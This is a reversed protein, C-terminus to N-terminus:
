SQRVAFGINKVLLNDLDGGRLRKQAETGEQQQKSKGGPGCSNRLALNHAEESDEWLLLGPEEKAGGPRQISSYSVEQQRLRSAARLAEQSEGETFANEWPEGRRGAKCGQHTVKGSRLGKPFDRQLEKVELAEGMKDPGCATRDNSDFIRTSGDRRLRQAMM